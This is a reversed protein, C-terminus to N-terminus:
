ARLARVQAKAPGFNLCGAAYGATPSQAIGPTSEVDLYLPVFLSNFVLHEPAFQMQMKFSASRFGM